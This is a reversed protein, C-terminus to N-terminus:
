FFFSLLDLGTVTVSSSGGSEGGQTVGLSVAVARIPLEDRQLYHRAAGAKVSNSVTLFFGM